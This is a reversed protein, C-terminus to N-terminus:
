LFMTFLTLTFIQELHLSVFRHCSFVVEKHDLPDVFVKIPKGLGVHKFYADKCTTFFFIVFKEYQKKACRGISAGFVDMNKYGITKLLGTIFTYSNRMFSNYEVKSANWDKVYNLLAYIKFADQNVNIKCHLDLALDLTESINHEIYVLSDSYYSFFWPGIQLYTHLHSFHSSVHNLVAYAIRPIHHLHEVNSVLFKCKLDTVQGLHKSSFYKQSMYPVNIMANYLKEYDINKYWSAKKCKEEIVKYEAPFMSQLESDTLVCDEPVQTKEHPFDGDAPELIWQQNSLKEFNRAGLQQKIKYLIVQTGPTTKENCIDCVHEPSQSPSLYPPFWHWQQQYFGLHLTILDPKWNLYLNVSGYNKITGNANFIWVQSKSNSKENVVIKKNVCQIGGEADLYLNGTHASRIYFLKNSSLNSM